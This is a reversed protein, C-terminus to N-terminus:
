FNFTLTDQLIFCSTRAVIHVNRNFTVYLSRTNNRHAWVIRAIPQMKSSDIPYFKSIFCTYLIDGFRIYLDLKEYQIRYSWHRRERKFFISKGKSSMVKEYTCNTPSISSHCIVCRMEWQVYKDCEVLIVDITKFNRLYIACKLLSAFSGLLFICYLSKTKWM